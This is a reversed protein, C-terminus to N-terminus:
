PPAQRGRELGLSFAKLSFYKEAGFRESAQARAEASRMHIPERFCELVSPIGVRGRNPVEAGRSVEAAEQLAFASGQGISIWRYQLTKAAVQWPAATRLGVASPGAVMRLKSHLEKVPM